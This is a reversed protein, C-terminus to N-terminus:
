DSHPCRFSHFDCNLLAGENYANNNDIEPQLIEISQDGSLNNQPHQHDTNLPLVSSICVSYQTTKDAWEDGDSIRNYLCVENSQM